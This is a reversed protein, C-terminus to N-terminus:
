FRSHYGADISQPNLSTFTLRRLPHIFMWIRATSEDFPQWSRGSKGGCVRILHLVRSLWPWLRGPMSWSLHGQLLFMPNPGWGNHFFELTVYKCLEGFRVPRFKILNLKEGMRVCDISALGYYADKEGTKPLVNDSFGLM